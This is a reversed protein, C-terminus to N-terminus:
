KGENGSSNAVRVVLRGKEEPTTRLRLVVDFDRPKGDISVSLISHSSKPLIYEEREKEAQTELQTEFEISM